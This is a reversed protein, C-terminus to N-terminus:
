RASLPGDSASSECPGGRTSHLPMLKGRGTVVPEMRRVRLSAAETWVAQALGSAVSSQRLNELVLGIVESEEEIEVRPSVVLSIRTFGDDDEEELLQYDLPSGGFREPLVEQLICEMESGVLTVGEGTLKRFSRVHRLHEAYGYSELPCGCSRREIVGYDDSEVNLLLKPATPLLTTFNFADVTMETGPVKRPFQILALADRFFHLDNGDLPRSCGFGVHGVESIPYFPMWRAGSSEIAKVKAPTPPEGGGM